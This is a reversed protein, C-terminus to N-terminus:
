ILIKPVLKNKDIKTLVNYINQGFEDSKKFADNRNNKDSIWLLMEESKIQTKDIFWQYGSIINDIELNIENDQEDKISELREIPTM